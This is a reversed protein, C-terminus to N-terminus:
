IPHPGLEEGRFLPVAMKPGHRNHGFPQMSWSAVQYLTPRPGAGGGHFPACCVGVKRGMDITALRDGMEAVASSKNRLM